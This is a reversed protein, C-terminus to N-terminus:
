EDLLKLYKVPVHDTLWVNNQSVYFTYGDKQMQQASIIFAKPKGHRKGVAIATPIDVSLHVHHRARKQIGTKLISAVAKEATGHYLYVPPNEQKLHLDVQISHGQNARIKSKDDNFAFRQKNNTAVVDNLIKRTIGFHHENMKEILEKVDAWGNENLHLEIAEPEHRLVLSLFKSIRTTEKESLM